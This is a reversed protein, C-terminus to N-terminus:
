PRKIEKNHYFNVPGFFLHLNNEELKKMKM